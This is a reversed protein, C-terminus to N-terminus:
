SMKELGMEMRQSVSICGASFYFWLSVSILFADWIISLPRGSLCSPRSSLFLEFFLFLFLFHYIPWRLALETTSFLHLAEIM